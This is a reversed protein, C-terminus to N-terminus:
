IAELRKGCYPCYQAIEVGRMQYHGLKWQDVWYDQVQMRKEGELECWCKPKEEWAHCNEIMRKFTRSHGQRCQEMRQGEVDLIDYKCDLCKTM